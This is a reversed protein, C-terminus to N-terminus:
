ELNEMLVELHGIEEEMHFWFKYPNLTQPVTVKLKTGIILKFLDFKPEAIKNVEVADDNYPFIEVPFIDDANAKDNIVASLELHQPPIQPKRDDDYWTKRWGTLEESETEKETGSDYQNTKKNDPTDFVILPKGEAVAENQHHKVDLQNNENDSINLNNKSKRNSNDFQSDVFPKTSSPVPKQDLESGTETLTTSNSVMSQNWSGSEAPKTSNAMSQQYWNLETSPNLAPPTNRNIQHGVNSKHGNWATSPKARQVSRPTRM